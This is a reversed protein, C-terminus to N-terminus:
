KEKSVNLMHFVSSKGAGYFFRERLREMLSISLKEKAKDSIVTPPLQLHDGALILRPAKPIAIWCAMEMAQGCEDIVTTKFHDEPLYQLPGKERCGVLTSLVVSAKVLHAKSLRKLVAQVKDRKQQLLKLEQECRKRIEPRNKFSKSHLENKVRELDVKIKELEDKESGLKVGLAHPIMNESVRAPHGIRIVSIGERALREGLNDVAVNSASTM